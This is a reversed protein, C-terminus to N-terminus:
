SDKFEQGHPLKQDRKQDQGLDTDETYFRGELKLLNPGVSEM